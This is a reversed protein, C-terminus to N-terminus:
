VRQGIGGILERFGDKMTLLANLIRLSKLIVGSKNVVLNVEHIIKKM